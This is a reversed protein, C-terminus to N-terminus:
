QALDPREPCGVPQPAHNPLMAPRRSVRWEGRRSSHWIQDNQTLRCPQVTYAPAWFLRLAPAKGKANFRMVPGRTTRHSITHAYYPIGLFVPLVSALGKTPSHPHDWLFVGVGVQTIRSFKTAASWIINAYASHGVGKPGPCEAHSVGELLM